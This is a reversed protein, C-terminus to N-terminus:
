VQVARGLATFLVFREAVPLGTAQTLGRGYLQLQPAHHAAQVIAQEDGIGDTKYDVVILHGSEEFVLDVIGEIMEGGEPFWLPLERWVRGARRARDMLPTALARAVQEGAHRTATLDLGFRPGLAGAIQAAQEPVDFPIWELVQHVLSGFDRGAPSASLAAPPAARAAFRTASLPVFPRESATAILDRRLASWRAAVADGGEARAVRSMDFRPESPASTPLSSAELTVVDSPPSADLFPWLDRWFSGARADAPPRPIVLIDRARTCAVYLLRRGEAWARARDREQLGNWGPPRCGEVFGVAVKGEAWLPIVDSRTQLSATQDYLAVIPAELGKAKHISLIRVTGQDGPRTTPLDPEESLGTAREELLLTFGRLTLAGLSSAQRALTVVKELNAVQSEGRRTATLAALVGTVDYLREVLAPVSLHLRQRHLGHLCELAQRLSPSTADTFVDGALFLRGGSLVHAVIDSDRVGFFSSRLAGVLSARDSRDDIARLAALAEHVEQRGFFSKGGEVTFRLGAAELAEELPRIQTLRPALVMVDGARSRRAGDDSPDRVIFGGEAARTAFAALAAAEANLLDGRVESFEPADFRLQLVSPEDTLDHPPDIAEYAPQDSETSAQILTAFARNVFRLIAARSRFNQTLHLVAHGPRSSADETLRRLLSVEARRFRYISQKADGVVVLGGPVGQSLLEAIQVQLPDTDQFEDVILYRFRSAFYHRVAPSDRLANRAELLLDLFDLAGLAKKKKEYLRIVGLLSRVLRAHLHSGLATKWAASVETTWFAIRRGEELAEESPWKPKQGTRGAIKPIRVLHRALDGGELARAGASFEALSELKPALTDSAKVQSALALGRAAYGELERRWARPDPAAESLIPDLDRQELLSRALGRLSRKEGFEFASELPIEARIAEALDPDAAGLREALWEDWSAAFIADTESEDAVRFGPAVGCELPREQLMTACLAHLTSVQARELVELAAAARGREVESLSADARTGELRERLRLKMTAAANETFTVAAIELLSARGTRVLSEIRDVLLTTKGTGAGAALVLSTAHDDRARRRAAEDSPLFRV